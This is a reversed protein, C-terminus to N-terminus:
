QNLTLATPMEFEGAETHRVHRPKIRLTFVVRRIPFRSESVVGIITRPVLESELFLFSVDLPLRSDHKMVRDPINVRQVILVIMMQVYSLRWLKITSCRSQLGSTDTRNQSPAGCFAPLSTTTMERTEYARLVLEIRTVPVLYVEHSTDRGKKEQEHDSTDVRVDEVGRVNGLGVDDDGVVDFNDEVVSFVTPPGLVSDGFLDVSEWLDM